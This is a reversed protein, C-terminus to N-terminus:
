SNKANDRNLEMQKILEIAGRGLHVERAVDDVSKGEALLKRARESAGGGRLQLAEEVAQREKADEDLETQESIEDAEGNPTGQESIEAPQPAEQVGQERIAAGSETQSEQEATEQQGTVGQEPMESTQYEQHGSAPEVYSIIQSETRESIPLEEGYNGSVYGAYDNGQASVGHVPGQQEYMEPIEEYSEQMMQSFEDTHGMHQPEQSFGPLDQPEGDTRMVEPVNQLDSSHAMPYTVPEPEHELATAAEIDAAEESTLPLGVVDAVSPSVVVEPEAAYAHQTDHAHQEYADTSDMLAMSEELMDSFPQMSSKAASVEHLSQVGVPVQVSEHSAIPQKVYADQRNYDVSSISRASERRAQQRLLKQYKDETKRLQEELEGSRRDAEVILRELRDIHSGMREIIQDASYQLEYRLKASAEEVDDLRSQQTEGTILKLWDNRRLLVLVLAGLIIFFGLIETSM